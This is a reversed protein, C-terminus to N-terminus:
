EGKDIIGLADLILYLATAIFVFAVVVKGVPIFQGTEFEFKFLFINNIFTTSLDIIGKIIEVM